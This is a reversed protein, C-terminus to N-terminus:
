IFTVEDPRVKVSGPPSAAGVDIPLGLGRAPCFLYVTLGLSFETAVDETFLRYAAGGAILLLIPQKFLAAIVVAAIDISTRGSRDLVSFPQGGDL